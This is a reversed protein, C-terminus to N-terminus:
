WIWKAMAQPVSSTMHRNQHFYWEIGLMANGPSEAVLNGIDFLLQPQTNTVIGSNDSGNLDLFGEFSLYSGIPISWVWTAQWTAKNFNDKRAYINLSAVNFGPLILDTGLGILEARFGLGDRNLQGALYFDRFIGAQLDSNFLKSLSIRPAWEVYIHSRSGTEVGGFDVFKGSTLDAFFYNDGYAWTSFHELTLTTMNGDSTNNGYFRDHFNSGYLLQINTSSFNEASTMSPTSILILLMMLWHLRASIFHCLKDRALM